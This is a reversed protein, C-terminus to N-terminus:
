EASVLERLRGLIRESQEEDGPLLPGYEMRDLIFEADSDPLRKLLSTVYDKDEAGFGTKYVLGDAANDMNTWGMGGASDRPLYRQTKLAGVLTGYAYQFQAPSITNGEDSYRCESLVSAVLAESEVEDKCYRLYLNWRAMARSTIKSALLILKQPTSTM